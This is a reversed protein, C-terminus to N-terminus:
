SRGFSTPGIKRVSLVLFPPLHGSWHQVLKRRAAVLDAEAINPVADFVNLQESQKDDM